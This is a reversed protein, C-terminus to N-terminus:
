KASKKGMFSKCKTTKSHLTSNSNKGAGVQKAQGIIQSLKHSTKVPEITVSEIDIIKPNEIPKSQRTIIKSRKVLKTNKKLFHNTTNKLM